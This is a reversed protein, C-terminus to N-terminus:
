GGIGGGSHCRFRIFKGNDSEEMELENESDVIDSTRKLSNQVDFVQIHRDKKFFNTAVRTSKHDVGGGRFRLM